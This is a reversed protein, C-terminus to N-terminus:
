CDKEQLKKQQERWKEVKERGKLIEQDLKETIKDELVLWEM